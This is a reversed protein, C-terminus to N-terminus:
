DGERPLSAEAYRKFWTATALAHRSLWQYSSFPEERAMQSFKTPTRDTEDHLVAWAFHDLFEAVALSEAGTGVAKAQLFAVAQCLGSQHILAPMRRCQSAYKKKFSDERNLLGSIKAFADQARTQETNAM